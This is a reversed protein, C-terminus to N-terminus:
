SSFSLLFVLSNQTLSHTTRCVVISMVSFQSSSAAKQSAKKELREFPLVASSQESCQVDNLIASERLHLAEEDFLSDTNEGGERQQKWFNRRAKLNKSHVRDGDREKPM